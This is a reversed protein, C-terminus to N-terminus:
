FRHLADSPHCGMDVLQDFRTPEVAPSYMLGQGRDIGIQLLFETQRPTEVGEAIVTMDCGRGFEALSTVLRRVREDQELRTVYSRDIKFGDIPLDSLMRLQSVGTGFDDLIVQAGGERARHLMEITGDFDRILDTEAIELRIGDLLHAAPNCVQFHLLAGLHHASVNVGIPVSKAGADRWDWVQRFMEFMLPELLGAREASEIFLGAEAVEEDGNRDPGLRWRALAEGALVDGSVLDVEPQIWAEIKQNALADRLAQETSIRANRQNRLIEDAFVARGRGQEKAMYLAADAHRYLDDACEGVVSEAMGISSGVTLAVGEISFPDNFKALLKEAVQRMHTETEVQRILVVLEDGGVRAVLANEDSLAAKIREGVMVLLADGAQHGMSDNVVKFRDLDLFLLGVPRHCETAQHHAESGELASELESHLLDRNPIGMLMDHTARYHLEANLASLHQRDRTLTSLLQEAREILAEREAVERQTLRGITGAVSAGYATLSSVAVLAWMQTSPEDFSPWLTSLVAAVAPVSVMAVIALRRCAVRQSTQRAQDLRNLPLDILGIEARSLAVM